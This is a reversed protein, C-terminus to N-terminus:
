GGLGVEIIAIDVNKDAFYSFAMAMTAEFFSPQVSDFLQLNNEVFNVVYNEDIMEGNVKIREGFDVLHPSTYLGTRYGASQFIAALM